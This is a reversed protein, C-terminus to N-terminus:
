GNMVYPYGIRRRSYKGWFFMIAGFALKANQSATHNGFKKHWVASM